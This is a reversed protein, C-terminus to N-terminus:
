AAKIRICVSKGVVTAPWIIMILLSRDDRSIYKIATVMTQKIGAGRYDRPDDKGVLVKASGLNCLTVRTRDM